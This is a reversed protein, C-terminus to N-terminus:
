KKPHKPAEVKVLYGIGLAVMSLVALGVLPYAIWQTWPTGAILM